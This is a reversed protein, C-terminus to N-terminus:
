YDPGLRNGFADTPRLELELREGGAVPGRRVLRLESAALLTRGFRVLTSVGDTRRYHGLVADNGEIEIAIRYAGPTTTDAFSGRYNGQGDGALTVSAAVPRIAQQIADDRLLLHLKRQAASAGELSFGAPETPSPHSALLNGLSEGPKYVRAVVREADGIPLGDRALTVAISIPTGVTAVRDIRVEYELSPEEVIAAAEYGIGPRGSVEMSWTGQPEVVTGGVLAPLDLAFIRYFAGEVIRGAETLDVGDREVRFHLHEGRRWSLMMVLRRASTGLEFRQSAADDKMAGRRYAVLQPSHGRLSEIVEEVFYERLDDDPALTFRSTGNTAGSVAALMEMFPMSAGVGITHVTVGLGPDLRTPPQTPAVNSSPWGPHHDIELHSTGPPPSDDVSVVAPNANQMGDTFLVVHREPAVAALGSDLLEIARQLGGGMATLNTPVTALAGIGDAIAQINASSVPLMADGDLEFMTVDTGFRVVGLRDAPGASVSWLQIFLEAADQLVALKPDCAACASSLMSGSVDLALVVAARPPILPIGGSVVCASGDPPARHHVIASLALCIVEPTHPTNDHVAAGNGGPIAPVAINVANAALNAAVIRGQCDGSPENGGVLDREADAYLSVYLTGDAVAAGNARSGPAEGPHVGFPAAATDEIPHGNLLEIFDLSEAGDLLYTTCDERHGNNLQKLALSFAAATGSALGHNPPSLAVFESIPNFGPRPAPLDYQQEHLSKLYLRSSITGKSFAVIAVRAATSPNSAFPQHNPDHRALIREVADGIERADEVISRNQPGFRIFYPEIDLWANAPADIAAKFSTQGNPEFWNKRYNFDADSASLLNHGHVFLVPRSGTPAPSTPGLITDDALHVESQAAAIGTPLALLVSGILTRFRGMAMADGTTNGTRGRGSFPEYALRAVGYSIAM